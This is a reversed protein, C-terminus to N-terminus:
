NPNPLEYKHVAVVNGNWKQVSGDGVYKFGLKLLVNQSGFNEVMTSAVIEVLALNSFGFDIMQRAADTMIGRGWYEEALWYGMVGSKTAQDITFGVCGVVKDDITIAKNYNKRKESKADDILDGIFKLADSEHYPEPLRSLFKTINPNNLYHILAYSDGM